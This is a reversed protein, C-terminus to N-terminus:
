TAAGDAAHEEQHDEEQAHDGGYRLEDFPWRDHGLCSFLERAVRQRLVQQRTHADLEPLVAPLRETVRAIQGDDKLLAHDGHRAIHCVYWEARLLAGEDILVAPQNGVAREAWKSLAITGAIQLAIEVVDREGEHACPERAAVVTGVDLALRQGAHAHHGGLYIPEDILAHQVHELLLCVHANVIRRREEADALPSSLKDRTHMDRGVDEERNPM